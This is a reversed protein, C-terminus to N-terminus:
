YQIIEQKLHPIDFNPLSFAQTKSVQGLDSHHVFTVAGIRVRLLFSLLHFFVHTKMTLLEGLLFCKDFIVSLASPLETSFDSDCACCM